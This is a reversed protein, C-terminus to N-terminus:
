AELPPGLVELGYRPAVEGWRAFEAPDPHAPLTRTEAPVGVETYLDLLGAPVTIALLRAAESGTIRFRHPVGRPLYMTSGPSLEHVVGGAEYRLSGALVHFVEAERQHRHLPTAIGPPQTVHALGITGGTAEPSLAIEFLSGMAWIATGSGAPTHVGHGPTGENAPLEAAQEDHPVRVDNRRNKTRHELVM